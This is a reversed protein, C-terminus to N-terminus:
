VAGPPLASQQSAQNDPPFASEDALSEHIMTESLSSVAALCLFMFIYSQDFYAVSICTATHAFLASGVCWVLFRDKKALTQESRIIEGACRFAKLVLVIFLFMLPLGAWVGMLLYYNTIDCQDPSWSVGTPMWHRTFNTGALWWEDLHNISSEILHARHWGTSSGTLDISDLIYYAPRDMVIALMMYCAMAAWLVYRLWERRIWLCLAGIGFILSMIPGSSNSAVVIVVCALMGILASKRYERWIGLMLPFCVAGVSGALIAHAFPGTARFKDDRVLVGAGFVSFLNRGTAHELVMEVAIPALLWSIMRVVGIFEERTACFVRTLFYIGGINFAQGLNFVLPVKDGPHIFSSFVLWGIWTIMINDMGNRAGALHEGRVLIRVIGVAVIIRIVSLTVPGVNVTQGVTMYCCGVIIPLLAYRRHILLVAIANFLLFVMTLLTM